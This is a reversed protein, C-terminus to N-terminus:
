EAGAKLLAVLEPFRADDLQSAREVGFQDLVSAVWPKGHVRVAEVVVPAVDRDFDLPPTEAAPEEKPTEAVPEAAPEEKPAEAVPEATPEETKKNSRSRRPADAVPADEATNVAENAGVSATSMTLALAMLKGALEATTQGTVEVKYM